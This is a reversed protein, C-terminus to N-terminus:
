INSERLNRFLLPNQRDIPQWEKVLGSLAKFHPHKSDGALQFLISESTTIAAGAQRMRNLAIDIEPYNISSVGDALVHVNYKNDLLELVTQLVCVHSEIGYIVISETKREKLFADVEPILMSFKTKPKVLAAKNIDIESVTAGFLVQETVVLPVDTIEAARSM